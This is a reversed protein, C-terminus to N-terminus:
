SGHPQNRKEFVMHGPPLGRERRWTFYLNAYSALIYDQSAFGLAAAVQDIWDPPGELELFDGMPTEDLVVLGEGKPRRFEARYKEYCFALQFGLRELIERVAEGRSVETEIEERVKYGTEHQPQGKWTLWWRRGKSRLRLLHGANRLTQQPTDFVLNRELLRAGLPRFGLSRIKRRVATRNEVRLKIETELVAAPNSTKLKLLQHLHTL